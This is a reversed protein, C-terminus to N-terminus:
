DRVIDIDARDARQPVDPGVGDALLRRGVRRGAPGATIPVTITREPNASLTLTIAVDGGEAVEYSAAGFNVRVGPLDDDTISVTTQRSRPRALATRCSALPWGSPSGTTM